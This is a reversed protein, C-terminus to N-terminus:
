VGSAFVSYRTCVGECGGKYVCMIGKYVSGRVGECVCECDMVCVEQECVVQLCVIGQVCERVGGGKYVCMIGKYM